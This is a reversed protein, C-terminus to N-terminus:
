AEKLCDNEYQAKTLVSKIKSEDDIVEGWLNCEECYELAIMGDSVNDVRKGNVFDGVQILEMKTKGVTYGSIKELFDFYIMMGKEDVLFNNRIDVIKHLGGKNLRLYSGICIEEM